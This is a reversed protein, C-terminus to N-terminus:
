RHSAALDIHSTMGSGYTVLTGGGGDQPLKFRAAVYQGLLTVALSLTGSM